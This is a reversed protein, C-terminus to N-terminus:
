RDIETSVAGKDCQIKWDTLITNRRRSLNEKIEKSLMKFNEDKFDLRCMIGAGTPLVLLAAPLM